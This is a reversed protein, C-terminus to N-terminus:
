KKNNARLLPLRTTTCAACTVFVPNFSSRAVHLNCTAAADCWVVVQLVHTIHIIPSWRRTQGSHLRMRNQHHMMDCDCTNKYTTYYIPTHSINYCSQPPAASYIEDIYCSTYVKGDCENPVGLWVHACSKKAKEREREVDWRSHSNNNNNNLEIFPFCLWNKACNISQRSLPSNHSWCGNNNM